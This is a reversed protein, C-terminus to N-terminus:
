IKTYGGRLTRLNATNDPNISEVWVLERAALLYDYRSTGSPPNVTITTTHIPYQTEGTGWIFKDLRQDAKLTELRLREDWYATNDLFPTNHPELVSDFDKFTTIAREGLGSPVMTQDLAWFKKEPVPPLILAASAGVLGKLFSRRNM